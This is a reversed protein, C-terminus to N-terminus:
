QVEYGKWLNSYSVALITKLESATENSVLKVVKGPQGIVLSQVPVVMNETVLAGAAIISGAGIKAGDLVIAGMGILVGDEIECGHLIAGHGVSVHDGIIVPNEPTEHIMCNDQINSNKGIRISNYDSRVVANYWITSNSGLTVDGIVKAGPAIWAQPAISPNKGRYGILMTIM